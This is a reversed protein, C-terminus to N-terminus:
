INFHLGKCNLHKRGLNENDIVDINLESLKSNVDTVFNERQKTDIRM